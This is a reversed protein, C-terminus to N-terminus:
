LKLAAVNINKKSKKKLSKEAKLDSTISRVENQMKDFFATSSKVSKAKNKITQVRGEKAAQEIVKEAAKKSYKTNAVGGGASVSTANLKSILKEKQDRSQKKKRQKSKKLRLDRKKDTDSRESTGIADGRRKDSIEQPALLTADNMAVPAVEEMAITPM